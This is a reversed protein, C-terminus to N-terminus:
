YKEIFKGRKQNKLDGKIQNDIGYITDELYVSSNSPMKPWSTYKVSQPLNAIASRDESLMSKEGMDENKYSKDMSKYYKKKAM